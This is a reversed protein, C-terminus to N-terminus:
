SEDKDETCSQDPEPHSFSPYIQWCDWAVCPWCPAVNVNKTTSSNKSAIAHSVFGAQKWITQM